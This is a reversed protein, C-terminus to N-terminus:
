PESGLGLLQAVWIRVAASLERVEVRVNGAAVVVACDHAGGVTETATPRVTVPVFTSVPARARAGEGAQRWGLRARWRHLRNPNIGHGRAFKSLGDGGVAWQELAWKADRVSWHRRAVLRTWVEDNTEDEKM